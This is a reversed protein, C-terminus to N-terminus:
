PAAAGGEPRDPGELAELAPRFRPNFRLATLFEVRAEEERGLGRLAIGRWLRSEELNEGNMTVLTANAHAIAREYARIAILSRYYGFQYWFARMPLGIEIAREFRRVAEAHEDLRGLIEGCAFHAWASGPERATWSECDSLARRWTAAGDEDAGLASLVALEQAPDYIVVFAGVFPRWMREFDDYPISRNAGYYSDQVQFVGDADDYGTVVRYHGMEGRGEVEIWQEAIVPAGARLVARVVARDGNYRVIASMGQSRAADAIEEPTVNTDERDPKLLAALAFQDRQVGYVGLAMVLASPACNNWKQWVHTPRRLFASDVGVTAGVLGAVPAAATAVEAAATASPPEPAHETPGAAITASPTTLQIVEASRRASASPQVADTGERLPTDGAAAGSCAALFVATATPM